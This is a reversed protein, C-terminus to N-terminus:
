SRRSCRNSGTPENEIMARSPCGPGNPSSPPHIEADVLCTRDLPPEPDLDRSHINISGEVVDVLPQAARGPDRPEATALRGARHQLAIEAGARPGLNELLEHPVRQHLREVVGLEVHDRLWLELRAFLGRLARGVGILRRDLDPRRDLQHLVLAQFNSAGCEGLGLGVGDIGVERLQALTLGLDM